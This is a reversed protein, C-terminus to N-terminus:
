KDAGADKAEWDVCNWNGSHTRESFFQGEFMSVTLWHPKGKKIVRKCAACVYDKQGRKVYRERLTRQDFEQERTLM